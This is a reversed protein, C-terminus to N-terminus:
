VWAREGTLNVNSCPQSPWKVGRIQIADETGWPSTPKCPICFVTHIQKGHEDPTLCLSRHDATRVKLFAQWPDPPKAYTLSLERSSLSIPVHQKVNSLNVISMEMAHTGGAAERGQWLSQYVSVTLQVTSRGEPQLDVITQRHLLLSRM